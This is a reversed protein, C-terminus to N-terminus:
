EYIEEPIVLKTLYPTSKGEEIGWSSSTSTCFSYSAAKRADDLSSIATGFENASVNTPLYYTSSNVKEKTSARSGLTPGINESTGSLDFTTRSYSNSLQSPYTSTLYKMYGIMGGISSSANINSASIKNICFTNSVNATCHGILGGVYSKSDENNKDTCSIDGTSYSASVTSPSGKTDGTGSTFSGTIYGILGGAYSSNSEVEIEGKAYSYSINITACYGTLGGAYVEDVDSIAKIKSDSTCYNLKAFIRTWTGVRPCYYGGNINSAIGGARIEDTKSHLDMEVNSNCKTVTIVKQHSPGNGFVGLDM